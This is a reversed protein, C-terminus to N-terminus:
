EAATVDSTVNPIDNKGNATFAWICSVGVPSAALVGSIIKRRLVTKDMNCCRLEAQSIEIEKEKITACILLYILLQCFNNWRYIFM